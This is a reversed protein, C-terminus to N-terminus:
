NNLPNTGWEQWTGGESTAWQSWTKPSAAAAWEQWTVGNRSVAVPRIAVSHSIGMGADISRSDEIVVGRVTLRTVATDAVTVMDGLQLGPVPILAVSSLVPQPVTLRAGAYDATYQAQDARQIWFGADIVHEPASPPGAAASLTVRETLTYKARGRLIPLDVGRRSMWLPSSSTDEPLTKQIITGSSGASVTTRLKFAADTVREVSVFLSSSWANVNEFVAGYWSGVGRNFDLLTGSTGLRDFSLDPMIWVEDDPVRIWEEQPEAGIQLSSGSGRWLDVDAWWSRERLPERWQVAVRSKVSSLDHSWSFGAEGIDDDSNLTAVNPRADLRGLDWWRLVGTEDIWYTANQAACQSALLDACNGGEVPPLVHLTNANSTREYVVANPVWTTLSGASSPFAVQFGAGVGDGNIRTTGVIGTTLSARTSVTASVSAGGARLTVHVSTDSVYAVTAYLFDGVARPLSVAAVATGAPGTVWVSATADTWALRVTDGAGPVAEVRMTGGNLRGAVATLEIRGRSKISYNGVTAYEASVDTVGSGWPETFFGPYGGSSQSGSTRVVGVEPWMSGTAPASFVCFPLRPPTSYWGCHRLIRDTVYSARLGLYRAQVADSESPMADALADWSITKDLSQYLDAAEVAVERGGTGGSASVVRGNTLVSVPGAGSDMSVSVPSEPAPPWVTSPDWPTAVTRTVDDGEVATFRAEAASLRDASLPDPLARSVRVSSLEVTKGNVVASM